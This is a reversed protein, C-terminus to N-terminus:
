KHTQEQRGDALQKALVCFRRLRVLVRPETLNDCGREEGPM